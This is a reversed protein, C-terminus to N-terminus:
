SNREGGASKFPRKDPCDIRELNQVRQRFGEIGDWPLTWANALYAEPWGHMILM